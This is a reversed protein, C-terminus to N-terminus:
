EGRVEVLVARIVRRFLYTDSSPLYFQCTILTLYSQEELHEFAFGTTYPRSLRSNRVEFIYKEDFLHVIIQDGYKLKKLNAFPGDLGDANTVHATLVSNGEWTPFATGNLWGVNNALWTVDWDSEATLPVGVIPAKVGLTPIEIWLDGLDGYALEKPQEPLVTVRKPAFGTAPLGALDRASIRSDDGGRVRGEPPSTVRFNRVFDTGATSGDGALAITPNAALVVSTTGCVYLRYYGLTTLSANLNLTAIFPGSGGGDSYSVSTVPIPIDPAVVGGVCGLTNFSGTNSYLLRYNAPNTVDDAFNVLDAPDDYVDLNFEVLLQTVSLTSLIIENEAVSADGTDPNSNVNPVIVVPDDDNTITCTATEGLALTITDGDVQTGGACVWASASYGSPGTETLDYTGADFTGDSV